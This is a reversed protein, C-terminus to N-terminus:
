EERRPYEGIGDGARGRLRSRSLRRDRLAGDLLWTVPPRDHVTDVAVDRDQGRERYAHQGQAAGGGEGFQYWRAPARIIEGDHRLM